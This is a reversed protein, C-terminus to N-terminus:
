HRVPTDGKTDATTQIRFVFRDTVAGYQPDRPNAGFDWQWKQIEYATMREGPRAKRNYASALAAMWKHCIEVDDPPGFCLDFLGEYRSNLSMAGITDELYARSIPGSERRGAIKYYTVVSKNVGSFMHMDTVPYSEIRNVWCYLMVVAVASIVLAPRLAGRSSGTVPAVDPDAAEVPETSCEADCKLLRSRRRAVYRYVSVGLRSIGPLFLGPVLPWFLPIGVAMARYAYFGGYARGRWVVYMEQELDGPTLRQDHSSNYEAVDLRRFDRFELRRFIDLSALVRVARRCVPCLGDYLVDMAGGARLRRGIADRIKSFDYFVLPLLVLDSFVINQLLIIGVHMSMTVAPVIRRALRSFLVTVFILEGSIAAIGLLVFAIDPLPALHLAVSWDGKRPLLTQEYLMSRMNTASVWQLGGDRLKSLGAALYPLAIVVWCAYRAWGYVPAPREAPPVSRGRAIRRLRDLSWGDGCPTFSLVALVYIPVLNQHWFGSYERLIGNLVFTSLAAFPIIIRTRWGIVGFFLVVETLRQFLWLSAESGLLREYGIPLAYLFNMTGMPQRIEPPLLAISSLDEWVTTLLLIFCTWARIAGLTGPTAAGVFRRFFGASSMLMALLWVGVWSVLVSVTIRNWKQLYHTIPNVHQGKIMGNLVPWTEGRYASEIIPPVVVFAFALWLVAVVGCVLLPFRMRDFGIACHDDQKAPSVSLSVRDPGNM